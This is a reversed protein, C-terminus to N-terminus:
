EDIPPLHCPHGKTPGGGESSRKCPLPLKQYADPNALSGKLDFGANNIATKIDDPSVRDPMYLIRIEGKLLNYKIQRVGSEWNIGNEADLYRQLNEKCEWCRLNASTDILWALKSSQAQSVVCLCLFGTICYYPKM